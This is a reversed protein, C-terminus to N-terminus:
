DSVVAIGKIRGSRWKKSGTAPHAGWDSYLSRAAFGAHRLQVTQVESLQM